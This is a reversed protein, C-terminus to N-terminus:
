KGSELSDFWVKQDKMGFLFTGRHNAKVGADIATPVIGGITKQYQVPIQQLYPSMVEDIEGYYIHVPSQYQFYYSANAQLQKAMVSTGSALSNEFDTTFFDQTKSPFVKSAEEWSIKYDYFDKATQYYQPKIASQALGTLGYYNEYAFIMMCATGVLYPVDYQSPSFIWRNLAAYIDSPSASVAVGKVPVGNQQLKEMFALTNFSGQSWGSLFLNDTKVGLKALVAKSANLMDYSVQASSDKVMWPNAESNNGQGVYDAAIVVYGQGSFNAVMLKTEMSNDLESPVQNKGFITGHQYSLMPMVTKNSMVPVALLGQVETSKNNKEPIVTTYTVRYLNVAYQPKAYSIDFNSFQKLQTTLIDSLAATSYQGIYQYSVSSSVAISAGSNSTVTLSSSINASPQNATAGLGIACSLLFLSVIILNKNILSIKKM